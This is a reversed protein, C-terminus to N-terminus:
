ETGVEDGIARVLRHRLREIEQIWETGEPAEAWLDRLESEESMVRGLADIALRADGRTATDPHDDIWDGVREPLGKLNGDFSAAVVAAAAVASAGEPLELHGDTDMTSSLAQRAPALDPADELEYAWDAADDNDFTGTGWAGM